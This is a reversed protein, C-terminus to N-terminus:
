CAFPEKPDTHSVCKKAPVDIEVIQRLRDLIVATTAVSLQGIWSFCTWKLEIQSRRLLAAQHFRGPIVKVLTQQRGLTQVVGGQKDQLLAIRFPGFCIEAFLNGCTIGFGKGKDHSLFAAYCHSLPPHCPPAEDTLLLLYDSVQPQLPKAPSLLEAHESNVHIELSSGTKADLNCIPCAFQPSSSSTGAKAAAASLINNETDTHPPPLRPGPQSSPAVSPTSPQPAAPSPPARAPASSGSAAGSGHPQASPSIVDLHDTNVHRVIAGPSRTNWSCIPCTFIDEAAAEEDEPTEDDETEIEDLM